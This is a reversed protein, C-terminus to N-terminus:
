EQLCGEQKEETEESDKICSMVGARNYTIIQIADDRRLIGRVSSICKNLYNNGNTNGPWLLDELAPREHIVNMHHCFHYILEYEKQTLKHVAGDITIEHSITNLTTRPTIDLIRKLKPRQNRLKSILRAKLEEVAVSKRIYDDAGVSLGKIADKPDSLVTLFLIPVGPDEKRIEKAVEYGDLGPMRIDLLIIDPHLRRYKALADFGDHAYIVEYGDKQLSAIIPEALWQDDEAYLLSYSAIQSDM